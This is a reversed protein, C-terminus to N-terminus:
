IRLHAEYAMSLFRLNCISAYASAYTHLHHIYTSSDQTPPLKKNTMYLIYEIHLELAGKSHPPGTDKPHHTTRTSSLDETSPIYWPRNARSESTDQPCRHQFLANRRRLQHRQNQVRDVLVKKKNHNKQCTTSRSTMEDDKSSGNRSPHTGNTDQIRVTLGCEKLYGFKRSSM